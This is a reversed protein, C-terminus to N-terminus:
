SALAQVIKRDARPLLAKRRRFELAANVADTVRARELVEHPVDDLWALVDSWRWFRWKGTGIVPEPFNGKGRKGEVLLRVSERTRGLRRAIDAMTLLEDPDIALVRVPPVSEVDRIASTVAELFTPAERDFEVHAVDDVWGFSGDGCGAEYLADFTADDDPLDELM